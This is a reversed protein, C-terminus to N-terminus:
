RRVSGEDPLVHPLPWNLLRLIHRSRRPVPLKVSQEIRSPPLSSHSPLPQSFGLTFFAPRGQAQKLVTASHLTPIPAPLAVVVFSYINPDLYTPIFPKTTAPSPGRQILVKHRSPSQSGKHQKSQTHCPPPASNPGNPSTSIPLCHDSAETPLPNLCTHKLWTVTSGPM